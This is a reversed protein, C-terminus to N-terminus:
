YMRWVVGLSAGFWHRKFVLANQAKVNQLLYIRYSTGFQLNLRDTIRFVADLGAETGLAYGAVWKGFSSKTGDTFYNESKELVSFENFIGLHSTLRFKERQVVDARLSLPISLSNITTNAYEVVFGDYYSRYVSRSFHLGSRWAWRPKFYKGVFAHLNFNKNVSSEVLPPSSGYSDQTFDYSSSITQEQEVATSYPSTPVLESKSPWSWPLPTYFTYSVGFEWPLKKKFPEIKIWKPQAPQLPLKSINKLPIQGIEGSILAPKDSEKVPKEPLDEETVDEESKDKSVAQESGKVILPKNNKDSATNNEEPFPDPKVENETIPATNKTTNDSNVAVDAMVTNKDKQVDETQETGPHDTSETKIIEEAQQEETNEVVTGAENQPYFHYGLASIAIIAAMGSGMWWWIIGRRKKKEELGADIKGWLEDSPAAGFGEFKDTLSGKHQENQM